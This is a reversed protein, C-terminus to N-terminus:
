AVPGAASGLTRLSARWAYLKSRRGSAVSDGFLAALPASHAGMFAGWLAAASLLLYYFTSDPVRPRLYLLIFATYASCALGVVGALRLLAQRGYRDALVGAPLAACLTVLGKTGTIIGVSTNEGRLVYIYQALIDNFTLSSAVSCLFRFVLTLRVNANLRDPKVNPGSMKIVADATLRVRWAGSGLTDRWPRRTDTM